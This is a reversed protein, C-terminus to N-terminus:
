TAELVEVWFSDDTPPLDAFLGALRKEPPGVRTRLRGAQALLAKQRRRIEPAIAEMPETATTNAITSM